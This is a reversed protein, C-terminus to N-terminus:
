APPRTREFSPAPTRKGRVATPTQGFWRRCSRTLAAQESYGLLQALQAVNPATTQAILELFRDRRVEDVIDNFVRGEALLRRQLTKPHVALANAIDHQSVSGTDLFRRALLRVKDSFLKDPAGFHEDIYTLAMRQLLPNRDPLPLALDKAAMRLAAVPADFRCPCGLVEAYSQIPGVRAHPLMALVPRAQGQSVLKVLQTMYGLSHELTQPRLRIQPVDIDITLDVLSRDSSVPVMSFLYNPSLVFLHSAGTQLAEELTAAHRMLILLPGASGAGQRHALRLGFDPCNGALATHELLRIFGIFPIFTDQNQLADVPLSFRMLEMIPDVGLSRTLAEYAELNSSRVLSTM